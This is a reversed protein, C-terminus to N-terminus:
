SLMKKFKQRYEFALRMVNLSAEPADANVHFIPIDYGKALDSSYRTYRLDESETTFGIRNNALMHITGGTQYAKTRAYNLFEAVIGQGPFAANGHILLALAKSVDQKPYGKESCDDQAARAYGEVVTSVFELHSPSNALTVKVKKDKESM